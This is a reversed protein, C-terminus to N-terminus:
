DNEPKIAKTLAAPIQLLDYDQSYILYKNYWTPFFKDKFNRSGKFHSFSRIKEYAFKMTREPFTHPDGIGSMPAFGLNVKSYNQSKMYKFLEVLIFDMVGHPSDETKRILDYTGEGPVFDPIINLFAIVKEEPNEVTIITRNKLEDWRFMGQSFIIEDRNTSDLWEDSVAKLKQLLGDKIPPIHISSKFGEDIVKNIANRLAKNKGGELTFTNLDVIGEQGLFLSKKSIEKYLPLSEEPVRYFINKFGNEFCFKDFLLVCQKLDAPSEAVPNELAVAFNGATRYAIFANIGEPAFILKDYYTKFYDLGSNGYKEVMLKAKDFEEQTTSLRSFYPKIITYFLFSLSVFGSVNISILFDKAFRTGPILGKNGILVFNKITSVISQWLNFEIGFHKKDLFYFGITGYIVVVIISLVASWIGIAHLKPNGKILYEKRSFLLIVFIILAFIAEEYDIAKTLHGICSVASMILAIWWANRLGKLMFIATLLLFLGAIFVFYNSAAIADLPIFDELRQIRESLAPTISSIINVIGLTFILFAPIVRMLLKNFKQLFSMAGSFLPLWFEFFRYLLTIALAEVGTYGLRSLIFSMSLEVAGLGRMFPSLFASFISALYGLMAYFLSAKLGLALMAIYVLFICAIDITVSVLITYILFKSDISHSILEDVFVELSPFFRIFIRYIYKKKVLSKYMLYIASVLLIMTMLAFVEAVGSLGRSLAYILIPIAVLVVTVIGTFAYISSAFHIKTKSTEECEIEDTFFALSAVGGAPMFISIFNRKLFLLITPSLNVKKRVSAFSMKYMFGQLVIYIATVVIGLIIFTLRSTLLVHKIQGLEPQEHRFFWAGVAIFLVALLFTAIFKSNERIPNLRDKLLSRLSFRHSGPEEM